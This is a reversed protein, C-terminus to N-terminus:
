SAGGPARRARRIGSRSRIREMSEAIRERDEDTMQVMGEPPQEDLWGPRRREPAYKRPGSNLYHRYYRVVASRLYARRSKADETDAGDKVMDRDLNAEIAPWEARLWAAKEVTEGPCKALLNLLPQPAGEPTGDLRQQAPPRAPEGSAGGARGGSESKTTTSSSPSSSTCGKGAGNKQKFGQKKSFNPFTIRWVDGDREVSIPSVDALHSLWTRAVDPRGCGTVAPLERDSVLFVDGTRDAYREIGLVGLRVWIALLRNDSWVSALKRHNMASTHVKFHPTVRPM